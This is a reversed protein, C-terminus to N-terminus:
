QTIYGGHGDIAMESGTVFSSDDSALYLVGYAVHDPVGSRGIPVRANSEAQAAADGRRFSPWTRAPPAGTCLGHAPAFLGQHLPHQGARLYQPRLFDQNRQDAINM